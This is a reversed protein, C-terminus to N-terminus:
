KFAIYNVRVTGSFNRNFNLTIVGTSSNLAAVINEPYGVDQYGCVIYNFGKLQTNTITYTSTGTGTITVTNAYLDSIQGITHTHSSAAAGVDSASLTINASLAKSNITRSTPVKDNYLISFSKYGM